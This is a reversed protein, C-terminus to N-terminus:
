CSYFYIVNTLIMRITASIGGEANGHPTNECASIVRRTPANQPLHMHFSHQSIDTATYQPSFLYDFGYCLFQVGAHLDACFPQRCFDIFHLFSYLFFMM